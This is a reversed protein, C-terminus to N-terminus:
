ERPKAFRTLDFDYVVGVSLMPGESRNGNLFNLAPVRVSLHLLLDTTPSFIAGALVYGATRRPDGRCNGIALNSKSARGRSM